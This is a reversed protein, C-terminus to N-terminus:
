GSDLLPRVMRPRPASTPSSPCHRRLAPSVRPLCSLRPACDTLMLSPGRQPGFSPTSIHRYALATPPCCVHAEEGAPPWPEGRPRSRPPRRFAEVTAAHKQSCIQMLCRPPLENSWIVRHSATLLSRLLPDYRPIHLRHFSGAQDVISLEVM